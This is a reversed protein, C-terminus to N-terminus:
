QWFGLLLKWWPLVRGRAIVGFGLAEYAQKPDLPTLFTAWWYGDSCPGRLGRLGFGPDHVIERGHCVVMHDRGGRDAGALLWYGRPCANGMGSLVELLSGSLPLTVSSLNRQALWYAVRLDFTDESPGGAAFHPVEAVPIEFLSALAARHCDGYHGRAPDHRVLQQQPKM